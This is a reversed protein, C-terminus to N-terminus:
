GQSPGNGNVQMNAQLSDFKHLEDDINRSDISGNSFTRSAAPHFSVLQQAPEQKRVIVSLSEVQEDSFSDEEGNVPGTAPMPGHYPPITDELHPQALVSSATGDLVSENTASETVPAVSYTGNVPQYAIDNSVTGPSTPSAASVGSYRPLLQSEFGQPHPVPPHHLEEPGDNQASADREDVSLVWQEWGEKRRLRDKGDVGVRFEINRSQYCVLKILEMDTTLQKIRNFDAIVALFVFGKSDMHKRLFMDKCLNDVSFYYELQMSVMSFVSYQDVYPNYPVASMPQMVPYDYM